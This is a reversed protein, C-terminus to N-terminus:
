VLEKGKQRPWGAFALFLLLFIQVPPFLAFLGWAGSYGAKAFIRWFAVVSLALIMLMILAGFPGVGGIMGGGTMMAHEEATMM